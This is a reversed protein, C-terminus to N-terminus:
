LEQPEFVIVAVDTIRPMIDDVAHNWEPSHLAKLVADKDKFHLLCMRSYKPEGEPAGITKNYVLKQLGPIKKVDPAHTTHYYKEFEESSVSPALNYLVALIM